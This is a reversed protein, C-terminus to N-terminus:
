KGFRLIYALIDANQQRSLGNPSQVPMATQMFEFLEDLSKNNWKGIFGAGTLAPAADSGALTGAHCLACNEVYLAQGRTAQPDSYIADWQSRVQQAAVTPLQAWRTVCIAAMGLMTVRAFWLRM